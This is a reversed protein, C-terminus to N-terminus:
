YADQTFDFMFKNEIGVRAEVREKFGKYVPDTYVWYDRDAECAFELVFVVHMGAAMDLPCQQKGGTVRRIYRTGGLRATETLGTAARVLAQPDGDPFLRYTVIHYVPVPPVPPSM